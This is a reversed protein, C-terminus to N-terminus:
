LAMARETRIPTKFRSPTSGEKGILACADKNHQEGKFAQNAEAKAAEAAKATSGNEAM